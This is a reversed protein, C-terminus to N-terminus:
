ASKKKRTGQEKCAESCYWPDNAAAPRGCESPTCRAHMGGNCWDCLYMLRPGAPACGRLKCEMCAQDVEGIPYGELLEEGAQITRTARLVVLGRM